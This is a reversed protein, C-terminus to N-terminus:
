CTSSTGQVLRWGQRPPRQFHGMSITQFGPPSAVEGPKLSLHASQAFVFRRGSGRCEDKWQSPHFNWGPSPDPIGGLTKQLQSNQQKVPNM